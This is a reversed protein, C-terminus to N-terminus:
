KGSTLLPLGTIPHLGLQEYHNRMIEGLPVIIIDILNSITEMTIERNQVKLHDTLLGEALTLMQLQRLPLKSRVATTGFLTKLEDAVM